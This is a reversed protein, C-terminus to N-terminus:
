AGLNNLTDAVNREMKRDFKAEESAKVSRAHQREADLGEWPRAHNRKLDEIRQRKGRVIRGDVPSTYEPIDPQVIAATIIKETRKGCCKPGNDRKEISNYM